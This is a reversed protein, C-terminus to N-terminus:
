FSAKALALEGDKYIAMYVYHEKDDVTITSVPHGINYHTIPNGLYDFKCIDQPLDAPNKQGFVIGYIYYDSLYLSYFGYESQDFTFISRKREFVPKYFYKTEELTIERHSISYIYLVGGITTGLIFKDGKPNISTLSYTSLFQKWDNPDISEPSKLLVQNITQNKTGLVIEGLGNRLIFLSDRLYYSYNIVAQNNNFRIEEIITKETSILDNIDISIIANKGADHIFVRGNKHDFSVNAPVVLEGPGEGKKGTSNIFNGNNKNFVHVVPDIFLDCVVLLSDYVCMFDISRFLCNDNIVEVELFEQHNFVPAEYNEKNACSCSLVITLFLYVTKKM